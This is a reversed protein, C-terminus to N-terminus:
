MVDCSDTCGLHCPEPEFQASFSVTRRIGDRIDSVDGM